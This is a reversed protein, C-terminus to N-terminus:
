TVWAFAFNIVSSRPFGADALRGLLHKLPNGTPIVNKLAPM